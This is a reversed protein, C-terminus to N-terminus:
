YWFNVTYNEFSNHKYLVNKIFSYETTLSHGAKKDFDAMADELCSYVKPDLTDPWCLPLGDACIIVWNNVSNFIGELIDNTKVKRNDM